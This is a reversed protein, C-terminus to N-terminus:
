IIVVFDKICQASAISHKPQNKTTPKNCCGCFFCIVEVVPLHEDVLVDVIISTTSILVSLSGGSAIGSM